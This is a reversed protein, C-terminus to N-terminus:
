RDAALSTSERIVKIASKHVVVTITGGATTIRVEFFMNGAPAIEVRADASLAGNEDDFGIAVLEPAATM